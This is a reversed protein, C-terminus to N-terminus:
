QRVHITTKSVRYEGFVARGPRLDARVINHVINAASGYGAIRGLPVDIWSEGDDSFMRLWIDGPPIRTAYYAGDDVYAPYAAYGDSTSIEGQQPRRARYIIEARHLPIPLTGAASTYLEYATGFAHSGVVLLHRPQNRLVSLVIDSGCRSRPDWITLDYAGPALLLTVKNTKQTMTHLQRAPFLNDIQIAVPGRAVNLCDLYTVSVVEKSSTGVTGSLAACTAAAFALCAFIFAREM